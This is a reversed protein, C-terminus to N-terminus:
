NFNFRISGFASLPNGPLAGAFTPNTYYTKDTLNKINVALDVRKIRYSAAADFVVYSPVKLFNLSDAYSDGKYTVGFGFTLGRALGSQIEYTAWLNGMTTAVGVPRNGYISRTILANTIPDRGLVVENSALVRAKTEPDMVVGNGIISLGALPRVGLSVEVGRTQDKGDPTPINGSGPLTVFYNNRSSQFLAVNLDAKGDFLMMKAGVEVQDSTEPATSLAQPETSLNIFAGTSYGAYFALNQTPQYVGGTSYTTMSKTQVIERYRIPSGPNTPTARQLGKDSYHVLDNRIGLRLKFQETLDIQDQAYFSVQDSSIRRDFTLSGNIGPGTLSTEVIPNFINISPLTYTSRAANIDVNKYEFGGLFTHKVPGTSTKWVFENQLTTYGANDFQQYATRGTSIGSANGQNGGANRLLGLTRADYVFATRMSLTDSIAWHHTLGLRNITHDTKNFGSYYRTDRSVNAINSNADFLIGYNDPKIKLERHDYDVHLTKDDALRWTFSPSAEVINRELGRFGDTHEMDAILRGAVNPLYPIAGTVDVYGNRTGFSGLMTGASLGFNYRPQKTVLNLSGGPGAVGFLASGPGKLVEIREIDYMTRFYNNQLNGDPIYDRFFSLALGRSTFSNAFGYGGGMLPQVSSVNRMADNMEIVGQEKLVSAPVVNVTAPIDRLPTDTKSGTRAVDEITGPRVRGTTVKIEPLTASKEKEKGADQSTVADQTAAADQATVPLPILLWPCFLTIPVLFRSAPKFRSLQKM